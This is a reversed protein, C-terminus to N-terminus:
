TRAIREVAGFAIVPKHPGKMTRPNEPYGGANLNFQTLEGGYICIQQTEHIFEVINAYDNQNLCIAKIKYAPMTVNHHYLDRVRRGQGTTGSLGLYISFETVFFRVRYQKNNLVGNARALAAERRESVIQPAVIDYGSSGSPHITQALGEGITFDPLTKWNIATPAAM